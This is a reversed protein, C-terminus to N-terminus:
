RVAIAHTACWCVRCVKQTQCGVTSTNLGSTQCGREERQREHVQRLLQLEGELERKRNATADLVVSHVSIRDQFVFQRGDPPHCFRKRLIVRFGGNQFISNSRQDCLVSWFYTRGNKPSQPRFSGWNENVERAFPDFRHLPSHM